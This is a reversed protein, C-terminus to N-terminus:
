KYAIVNVGMVGYKRATREKNTGLFSDFTDRLAVDRFGAAAIV